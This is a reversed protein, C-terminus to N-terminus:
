KKLFMFFTAISMIIFLSIFLAIISFIIVLYWFLIKELNGYGCPCNNRLIRLYIILRILMVLNIIGIIMTFFYLYYNNIFRVYCEEKGLLFFFILSLQLIINFIFWEKLFKKEKIDACKCKAKEINHLSIIILVILIISITLSVYFSRQSTKCMNDIFKPNVQM